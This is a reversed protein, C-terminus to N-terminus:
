ALTQDSTLRMFRIQIQQPSSALKTAHEDPELELEGPAPDPPAVAPELPASLTVNGPAPPAFWDAPADFPPCCVVEGCAPAGVASAPGSRNTFQSVSGAACTLVVTPVVFPPLM